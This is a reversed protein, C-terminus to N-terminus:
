ENAKEVDLIFGERGTVRITAGNSIPEASRVAWLEGLVQASGEHHIESKAEGISGVLTTLDHSLVANFAELSKRAVIWFFGGVFLSVVIALVPHVAPKWWVDGQFLFVSGIVLAMISIGLYVVQGSKRVAWIFPFVGLILIALAWYNVPLNYIGYGALLLGFLAGIELMGTGPTLVAMLALSFGAVLFLYQLNPNLLFDVM